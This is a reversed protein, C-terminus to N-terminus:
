PPSLWDAWQHEKKASSARGLKKRLRDRATRLDALVLDALTQDVKKEENNRVACCMDARM